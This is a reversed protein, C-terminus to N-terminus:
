VISVFYVIIREEEVYFSIRNLGQFVAYDLFIATYLNLSIGDTAM